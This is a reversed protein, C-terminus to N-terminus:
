KVSNKEMFSKVIDEDSMDITALRASAQESWKDGPYKDIVEQYAEKAQEIQKVDEDYTFAMLFAVEPNREFGPYDTLVKDYLKIAKVPLGVARSIAASKYLYEPTKQKDGIFQSTYANYAKMLQATAEGDIEYDDQYVIKELSDIESSLRKSEQLNSKLDSQVQQDASNSGGCSTLFALSLLMGLINASTKM